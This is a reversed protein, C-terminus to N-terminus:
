SYQKTTMHIAPVVPAASPLPPPSAQWWKNLWIQVISIGLIGTHTSVTDGVLYAVLHAIMGVFIHAYLRSWTHTDACDQGSMYTCILAIMGVCTHACLRLLDQKHTQMCARDHMYTYLQRWVFHIYAEAKLAHLYTHPQRWACTHISSGVCAHIYAAAKVRLYAHTQRWVCTHISSGEWAINNELQRVDMCTDLQKWVCKHISVWTHISSGESAHIICAAAKVCM